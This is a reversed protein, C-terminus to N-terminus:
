LREIEITEKLRGWDPIHDCEVKVFRGAKDRDQERNAVVGNRAHCLDISAKEYLSRYDSRTIYFGFTKM